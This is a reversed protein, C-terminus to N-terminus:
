EGAAAPPPTYPELYTNDTDPTALWIKRDKFYSFLKENQEKTLERAWLVKAGDIEAVNYVWEDHINHDEGYRVIVLHKGPTQELQNQIALRSPDGKCTWGIRDCQRRAALSVTDLLLLAFIARSLAIGVRRGRFQATRLHRIAQVMLAVVICTIPAAYHANSWPVLYVGVLTLAATIWLFRLKKDGLSFFFGPLALLTGWWFFASATRTTKTWSVCLAGRLTRDYEEREFGNYFDEFQANNYRMEPKAYGFLFMSATHYTRVNLTHPFLWPTGTLRLNYYGMFLLTLALISAIPLLVHAVRIRPSVNANSKGILWRLFVLAAPICFILGEYPRSNALIAAGFALLLADRTNPKKLIRQLGGLVLAGGTAAAAGGWYSNIWYHAIGFKVICVAGGLLAWRQPMWAQLMWTMAACMLAASLLVGFWPHGLLQGAALIFGQAPPYMSSYVPHWNVHFTEFSLWMPHPPNALRGHAFTDGMLLYSFEDHIGPVPFGLLPFIALRLAIVASFAAVITLASRKGVGVIFSEVRDFFAVVPKPFFLFLLAVLLAALLSDFPAPLFPLFTGPNADSM